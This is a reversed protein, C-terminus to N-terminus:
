FSLADLCYAMNESSMMRNKPSMLLFTTVRSAIGYCMICNNIELPYRPLPFAGIPTIRCIFGRLRKIKKVECSYLSYLKKIGLVENQRRGRKKRKNRNLMFHIRPSNLSEEQSNREMVSTNIAVSKGRSACILSVSERARIGCTRLLRSTETRSLYLSDRLAQLAILARVLGYNGM